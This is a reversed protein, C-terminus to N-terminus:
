LREPTTVAPLMSPAPAECTRLPDGTRFYAKRDDCTWGEAKLAAYFGPTHFLRRRIDRSGSHALLEEPTVGQSLAVAVAAPPLGCDPIGAEDTEKAPASM